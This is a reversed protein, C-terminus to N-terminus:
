GIITEFEGKVRYHTETVSAGQENQEQMPIASLPSAPKSPLISFGTDGDVWCSCTWLVASRNERM